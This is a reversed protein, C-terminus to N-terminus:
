AADALVRVAAVTQSWGLLASPALIRPTITLQAELRELQIGAHELNKQASALIILLGLWTNM